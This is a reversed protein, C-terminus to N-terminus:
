WQVQKIKELGGNMSTSFFLQTIFVVLYDLSGAEAFGESSVYLGSYSGPRNERSKVLATIEWRRPERLSVM